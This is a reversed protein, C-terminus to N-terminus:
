ESEILPADKEQVASVARITYYITIGFIIVSWHSGGIATPFPSSTGM